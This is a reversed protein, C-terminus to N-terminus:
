AKVEQATENKSAQQTEVKKWERWTRTGPWTSTGTWTWSRLLSVSLPPEPLPITLGIPRLLEAIFGYPSQAQGESWVAEWGAWCM